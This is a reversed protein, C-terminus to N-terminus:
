RIGCSCISAAESIRQKALVLEQIAEEIVVARNADGYTRRTIELLIVTDEVKKELDYTGMITDPAM